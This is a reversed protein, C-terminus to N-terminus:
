KQFCYNLVRAQPSNAWIWISKLERPNPRFRVPFRRIVWIETLHRARIWQALTVCSDSFIWWSGARGFLQDVVSCNTRKWLFSNSSISRLSSEMSYARANWRFGVRGSPHNSGASKTAQQGADQDQSRLTKDMRVRLHFKHVWRQLLMRAESRQLGPSNGFKEREGKRGRRGGGGWVGKGNNTNTHTIMHWAHAYHKHKHTHKVLSIYAHM